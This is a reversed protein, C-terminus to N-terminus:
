IGITREAELHAERIPVQVEGNKRHGGIPLLVPFNVHGKVPLGQHTTGVGPFFRHLFPQKTLKRVKNFFLQLNLGRTKAPPNNKIYCDWAIQACVYRKKHGLSEISFYKCFLSSLGRAWVGDDHFVSYKGICDTKIRNLFCIRCTEIAASLM